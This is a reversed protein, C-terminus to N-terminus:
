FKINFDVALINEVSLWGEYIFKFSIFKENVLQLTESQPHHMESYIKIWKGNYHKLTKNIIIM